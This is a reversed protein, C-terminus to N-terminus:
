KIRRPDFVESLTNAMKWEGNKLELTLYKCGPQEEFADIEKECFMEAAELTNCMCCVRDGEVALEKAREMTKLPTEESLGDNSDNGITSSGYYVIM